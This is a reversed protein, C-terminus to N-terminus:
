DFAEAVGGEGCYDPDARAALAGPGGFMHAMSGAATMMVFGAIGIPGWFIPSGMAALMGDVAQGPAIGSLIGYALGFLVLYLALYLILMILLLATYALTLVGGQGKTVRWAEFFRIDRDRITLAAAPSLRAMLWVGIGLAVLGFIAGIALGALPGAIVSVIAMPLIFAIAFGIYGGILLAIWILGVIAIRGEDAGLALRFPDGRVYRRQSAAEFVIWVLIGVPLMAFSIVNAQMSVENLENMYRDANRMDMLMRFYVEYLPRQLLFGISQTVLSVAGYVLAFRLLFGPPGPTRTFHLLANGFTIQKPTM